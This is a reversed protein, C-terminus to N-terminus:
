LHKMPQEENWESLPVVDEDYLNFIIPKLLALTRRHTRLLAYTSTPSVNGKGCTTHICTAHKSTHECIYILM